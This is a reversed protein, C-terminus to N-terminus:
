NDAGVVSGVVASVISVIIAGFFAAGFSDIAIGAMFINRSLYSALELMIANIVLSFLGLTVVNVPLSLLKVIPKIIANVLALALAAFILAEWSGQPVVEIGPVLWVAVAVAVASTLWNAIFGM